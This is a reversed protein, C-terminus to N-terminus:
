GRELFRQCECAAGSNYCTEHGVTRTAVPADKEYFDGIHGTAAAHLECSLKAVDQLLTDLHCQAPDFSMRILESQCVVWGFVDHLFTANM